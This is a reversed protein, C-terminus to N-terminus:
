RATSVAVKANNKNGGWSFGHETFLKYCFDNEDIKYPFDKSRDAYSSGENPTATLEGSGDKAYEVYPNYLPNIDIALGYAHKGTDDQSLTNITFCTTNNIGADDNLSINEIQYGSKYLEYFIEM